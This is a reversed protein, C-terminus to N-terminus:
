LKSGKASSEMLLDLDLGHPLIGDAHVVHCSHRERPCCESAWRATADRSGETATPPGESSLNPKLCRVDSGLSPTFSSYQWGEPLFSALPKDPAM